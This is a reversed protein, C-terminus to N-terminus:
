GLWRRARFTDSRRPISGTPLSSCRPHGPTRPWAGRCSEKTRGLIAEQVPGATPLTTPVLRWHSPASSSWGSPACCVGLIVGFSTPSALWAIPVVCAICALGIATVAVTMVVMATTTAVTNPPTWQWGITLQAWLSLAVTVFLFATCGFAALSRRAHEETNLARGALGAVALRAVHGSRMIDLARSM